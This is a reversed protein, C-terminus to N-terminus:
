GAKCYRRVLEFIQTLEFPKTLVAAPNLEATRSDLNGAGSVVAIPVQNFRPDQRLAAHMEWGNMVPMMLDLLILCPLEHEARLLKLADAGNAAGRVHFGKVRLIAALDARIDEDDEVILV